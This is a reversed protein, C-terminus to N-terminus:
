CMWDVGLRMQQQRRRRQMPSPTERTRIGDINSGAWQTEIQVNQGISWGLQRLEQAFAGVRAQFELDDATASLLVGVRHMRKPQQARAAVPWAAAASGLLTIFERRKV